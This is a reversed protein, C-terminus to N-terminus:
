HHHHDQLQQQQQQQQQQQLQQQEGNLFLLPFKLLKQAWGGFMFFYICEKQIVDCKSLFSGDSKTSSDM